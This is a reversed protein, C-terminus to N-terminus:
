CINSNRRFTPIVFKGPRATHCGDALNLGKSRPTVDATVATDISPFASISTHCTHCCNALGQNKIQNEDYITAHPKIGAFRERALESLFIFRHDFIFRGGRINRQSPDCSQLESM